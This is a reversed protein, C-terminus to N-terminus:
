DMEAVLEEATTQLEALIAIVEEETEAALIADVADRFARRVSFWSPLGPEVYGFETLALGTSWIPNEAVYDTLFPVTANQTPFYDSAHIWEAQTEPSTLWRLFLWTALEQEPTTKVISIYQIYADVAQGGDPGLFALFEWSDTNGADEFAAIQYPLGATSSTVFLAKRTAFEPNPYSETVLTCGSDQLDKMFLMAQLVTDNTFDYGDGAENTITGGFAKVWSFPNETGTYLVLGGTGDNDPDDDAANAQSAACAQAKFEESTTPPGDFGLDAGWTSNYWLVNASQSLAWGTRAGDPTLAGALPGAYHDALEAESIGYHPDNVFQNLDVLVDVSHWNALSSTYGVVTSPLDGSQIAANFANETDTYNGQAFAEVTIGWENTANFDAVLAVIADAPDGSGWVHWFAVTQGSPDVGMDEDDMDEMDHEEDDMDEMDHEEGDDHEEATDVDEAGDGTTCGVALMPILLLVLSLLLLKKKTM